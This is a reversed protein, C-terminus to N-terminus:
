ENDEVLVAEVLYRNNPKDAICTSLTLLHSDPTVQVSEDFSSQMDRCNYISDIYQQRRGTDTFDYTKLIHEEGYVVAAFIRYTLKKDPTYIYIEPHERLYQSDEYNHLNQFMSGDKMDHGYIVTDFDDFDKSNLAETYISGPYGEQGDITHNLYYADDDASQVIPYNVQTDPIEIWAYIDPNTQKLSDFDIPSIYTEEPTQEDKKKDDVAEKRVKTYIDENKSKQYEHWGIYGACALGAIIMAIGIYTRVKKSM